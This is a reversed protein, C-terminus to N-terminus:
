EGGTNRVIKDSLYDGVCVGRLARTICRMYAIQLPVPVCPGGVPRRGLGTVQRTVKSRGAITGEIITVFGILDM